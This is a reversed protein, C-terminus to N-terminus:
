ATTFTYFHPYRCSYFLFWIMCEVDGCKVNQRQYLYTITLPALMPWPSYPQVQVRKVLFTRYVQEGQCLKVIGTIIILILAAVKAYTFVDQVRTGWKVYAANIFTLLGASPSPACLAINHLLSIYQKWHRNLCSLDLTITQTTRRRGFWEHKIESKYELSPRGLIM